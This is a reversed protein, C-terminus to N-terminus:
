RVKRPHQRPHQRDVPGHCVAATRADFFANSRVNPDLLLPHGAPVLGGRRLRWLSVLYPSLLLELNGAKAANLNHHSELYGTLPCPFFRM